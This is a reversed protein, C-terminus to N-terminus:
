KYIPIQSRTRDLYSQLIIAAASADLKDTKGQWRGAQFSSWFEPELILPKKAAKKLAAMFVDIDKMLPNAKGSLDKSEGVVIAKVKQEKAITSVAEVLATDNPLVSHPFALRGSEDSLALGVRKKGYDIGLYRM